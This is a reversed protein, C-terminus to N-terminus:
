HSPHQCWHYSDSVEKHWAEISIWCRISVPCQAAYRIVQDSLILDVLLHRYVGSRYVLFHVGSHSSPLDPPRPQVPVIAWHQSDMPAVRAKDSWDRDSELLEYHEPQSITMLRSEDLRWIYISIGRGFDHEHLRTLGSLIRYLPDRAGRLVAEEVIEPVALQMLNAAEDTEDLLDLLQQVQEPCVPNTLAQSVRTGAQVIHVYAGSPAEPTQFANYVRIRHGDHWHLQFTSMLPSDIPLIRGTFYYVIEVVTALVSCRVAGRRLVNSFTLDILLVRMGHIVDDANAGILHYAISRARVSPRVRPVLLFNPSRPMQRWSEKLWGTWDLVIPRLEVMSSTDHLGAQSGPMLWTQVTGGRPIQECSSDERATIFYYVQDSRLRNLHEVAAQSATQMLFADDSEDLSPVLPM